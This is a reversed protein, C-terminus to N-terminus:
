LHTVQAHIIQTYLKKAMGMWNGSLGLEMELERQTDWPSNRPEQKNKCVELFGQKMEQEM